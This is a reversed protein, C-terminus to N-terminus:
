SAYDLEIKMEEMEPLDFGWTQPPQSVQESPEQVSVSELELAKAKEEAKLARIEAAVAGSSCKAITAISRYTPPQGVIRHTSSRSDPPM